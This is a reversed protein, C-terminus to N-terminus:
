VDRRPTVNLVVGIQERETTQFPNSNADGLVQGSSIPIEQGVSVQATENNLALISPKSLINSQVDEELANLVVGFLTGNREGGFGVTGGTLGLLSATAAEQLLSSGGLADGVEDDALAGTLALLNPAARSFTSSAFPVDGDTGAVLFQLGLERAATDSVEVIIAEVLVQKRRVDLERAVQTLESVFEPEASIILANSPEHLALRPGGNAGAGTNGQSPDTPLSQALELLIPLVSAAEAHSLRLVRTERRLESPVDLERILQSAQDLTEPSGRMILSNSAAAAVTSFEVYGRRSTDDAGMADALITQMETVPITKLTVTRSVLQDEDIEAIVKRVRELNRAREVLILAQRKYM